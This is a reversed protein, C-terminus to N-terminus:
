QKILQKVIFAHDNKIVVKYSGAALSSINIPENVYNRQTYCVKGDMTYIIVDVPQEVNGLQVFGDTPNPYLEIQDLGSIDNINLNDIYRQGDSMFQETLGAQNTARISVYYTQDYLPNSLITSFANSGGNDTWPYVDDIVPLTGIAIEYNGIGSHIDLANWNAYLTSTTFTDVDLANGDNLFDIEPPTFDLLYTAVEPLSWNGASDLALSRVFGTPIANESEIFMLEGLGAQITAQTGRSKYVRINDFIAECGGTRLSISNGVSLPTLDQWSAILSDDIYVDIAGSIPDFFTKCNYTQGQNVPFDIDAELNFVNTDVSYIQVKDNSERLYIFYSNGRNTLNASDCFFHMGARQNSAASTITQDWEYLYSSANDQEVLMYTNSNNENVDQFNLAGANLNYTGTVANWNLDNDEFTENAFGYDGLSSWDNESNAKKGALYFRKDVGSQADTDVFDVIFDDTHWTANPIISTIPPTADAVTESFTAVWGEAVTACDSRFELLLSGGTSIITGPSNTGTYTGILPSTTTDGDYIYLYDWNNELEFVSFDLTISQAAPPQILWLQREDDSYDTMAGGTDTLTGSSSTITIINPPNNILQYYYEWNWNIGPDVHTQNPFHQHGKIKICGGLVNTGSTAPGDFTRLPLIGYGSNVIDRSLDASSLYMENTYWAANSVYGEHEYGITYPNESGVHWAKDEELVMQTVQGDSSRIVYHYSVDAACNQAWSIAGAYTGQVTHITIASIPVGLRSSFNCIPAPNWIAPGYQNSKNSPLQFIDGKDSEIGNAKLKIKKASLVKYNNTGFLAELDYDSPNFNFQQAFVPSNMSSLVSYVQMDRALLNVAGSDPIESLSHLVTRIAAADNKDEPVGVTVAMLADFMQAYAMVQATASNKQQAVSIGTFQAVVNGNEIFYNKGNDHLGMIGYAQPIGSCATEDGPLHVMRTNNWSVAELIGEPLYPFQAYAQDFQVQSHVNLACALVTILLLIPKM